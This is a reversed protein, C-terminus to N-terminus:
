NCECHQAVIVMQRDKFKMVKFLFETVLLHYSM